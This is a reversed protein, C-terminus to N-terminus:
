NDVLRDLDDVDWRALTATAKGARVPSAYVYLATGAACVYTRTLDSPGDDTPLGLKGEYFARARAM